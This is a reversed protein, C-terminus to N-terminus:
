MHVACLSSKFRAKNADNSKDLRTSYAAYVISNTKKDILRRVKIEKFFFSRKEEFVEEGEQGTNVDRLLAIPGTQVCTLSTSSPDSFFDKQLKETLPRDFDALYLTVGSVKPDEFASVKLADKFFLGSAPIDGIQRSGDASAANCGNLLIGIAVAGRCLPLLLNSGKWAVASACYTCLLIFSLATFKM